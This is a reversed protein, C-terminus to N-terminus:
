YINVTLRNGSTEDNFDRCNNRVVLTISVIVNRTAKIMSFVIKIQFDNLFVQFDPRLCFYFTYNNKHKILITKLEFFNGNLTIRTFM